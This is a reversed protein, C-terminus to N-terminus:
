NNEACIDYLNKEQQILPFIVPSKNIRRYTPQDINGDKAWGCLLNSEMGFKQQKAEDRFSLSLFLFRYTM